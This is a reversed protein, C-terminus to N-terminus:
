CLKLCSEILSPSIIRLSLSLGLFNESALFFKLITKFSHLLAVRLLCHLQYSLQLAEVGIWVSHYILLLLQFGHHLYFIIVYKSDHFHPTIFWVVPVSCDLSVLKKSYIALSSLSLSNLFQHTSFLQKQSVTM